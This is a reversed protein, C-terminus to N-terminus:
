RLWWTDVSSSSVDCFNFVLVQRDFDSGPFLSLHNRCLPCTWRGYGIWRDLCVGHFIHGCKLESIEDEDEINCLCVACEDSIDMANCASRRVGHSFSSQYFSQQLLFSWAWKMYSFILIINNIITPILM